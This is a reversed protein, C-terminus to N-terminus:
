EREQLSVHGNLSVLPAFRGHLFVDMYDQTSSIETDLDDTSMEEEIGKDLDTLSEEKSILITLFERLKDNDPREKGVEEELRTLLKTTTAGITARKRKMRELRGTM